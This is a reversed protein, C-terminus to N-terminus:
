MGVGITATAWCGVGAPMRQSCVPQASWFFLCCMIIGSQFFFFFGVLFCTVWGVFVIFDAGIGIIVV